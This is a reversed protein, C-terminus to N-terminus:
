AEPEEDLFHPCNVGAWCEIEPVVYQSWPNLTWPVCSKKVACVGAGTSLFDSAMPLACRQIPQLASFYIDLRSAPSPPLYPPEYFFASPFSYAYSLPHPISDSPGLKRLSQCARGLLCLERYM